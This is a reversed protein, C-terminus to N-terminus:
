ITHHTAVANKATKLEETTIRGEILDRRLQESTRALHEVLTNKHLAIRILLALDHNHQNPM